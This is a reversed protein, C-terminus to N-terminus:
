ECAPIQKPDCHLVDCLAAMDAPHMCETHPVVSQPYMLSRRDPVHPVGVAHLFEHMVVHRFKEPSQLRNAVLIVQRQEPLTLGLIGGSSEGMRFDLMRVIDTNSDLRVLTWRHEFAEKVGDPDTFDLDFELDVRVRGGTQDYVAKTAELIAKREPGSFDVDAAVDLRVLPAQAQPAKAAPPSMRTCCTALLALLVTFLWVRAKGSRGM